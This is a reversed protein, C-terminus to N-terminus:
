KAKKNHQKWLERIRTKLKNSVNAYELAFEMEVVELKAELKIPNVKEVEGHKKFGVDNGRLMAVEKEVVYFIKKFKGKIENICKDCPSTTIIISYDSLNINKDKKLKEYLIYEAHSKNGGGINSDNQQIHMKEIPDNINKFAIAVVPISTTTRKNENLIKILKDFDGENEKLGEKIVIIEEQAIKKKEKKYSVPILNKSSINNENGDKYEITWGKKSNKDLFGSIHIENGFKDIRKQSEENNNISKANKFIAWKFKTKGKKGLENLKKELKSM